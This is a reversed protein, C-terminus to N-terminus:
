NCPDNSTPVFWWRPQAAVVVVFWRFLYSTAGEGGSNGSEKRTGGFRLECVGVSVLIMEGSWM